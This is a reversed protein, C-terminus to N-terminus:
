ELTITDGKKLAVYAKKFGSKVGHRGRVFVKEAPKSAIRISVPTVKFQDKIAKAISIKTAVKTVKFVFVNNKEISMNAKETIMPSIIVSNPNAKPTAEVVAPTKEVKKEAKAAKVAKPKKEETKKSFIAM